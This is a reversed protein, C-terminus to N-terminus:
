ANGAKSSQDFQHSCGNVEQTLRAPMPSQLRGQQHDQCHHLHLQPKLPKHLRSSRMLSISSRRAFRSQQKKMWPCKAM